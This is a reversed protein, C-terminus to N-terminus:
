FVSDTQILVTTQLKPVCHSEQYMYTNHACCNELERQGLFEIWIDYLDLLGKTSAPSDVKQHISNLRRANQHISNLRRASQHILLIRDKQSVHTTFMKLM